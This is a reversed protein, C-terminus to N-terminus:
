TQVLWPYSEAPSPHSNALATLIFLAGCGQTDKDPNSLFANMLHLTQKRWWKLENRHSVSHIRLRFIPYDPLLRDRELPTLNLWMNYIYAYFLKHHNMYMSEFWLVNVGYGLATLKLFVDLVKQNWIQEPTLIDSETYVIPVKQLRLIQSRTQLRQVVGPPILEQSFPNKLNNGNQFQKILFRLDFTWVLNKADVYSFHYTFPITSISEFTLIDKDNNSIEPIFLAIGHQRIARPRGFLKWFKSIKSIAMSQKRTLPPRVQKAAAPAIWSVKTRIHKSCFGDTKSPNPCREAPHKKSKISLCTEM